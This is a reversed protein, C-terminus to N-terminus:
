FTIEKRAIILQGAAVSVIMYVGSVSLTRWVLNSWSLPLPLGKTMAAMQEFPLSIYTSLLFGKLVPFIGLIAMLLSFTLITAIASGPRYFLTSIATAFSVVACLTWFTLALVLFFKGGMNWASHILYNKEMLDTLDFKIWALIIVLIAISFLLIGTILYLYLTKATLWTSRAVPRVWASKVTGMAFENSIQFSAIVVLALVIINVMWGLSASAIYFGSPIGIFNREAAASLGIFLFITLLVLIVPILFRARSRRLKYVEASLIGSLNSKM